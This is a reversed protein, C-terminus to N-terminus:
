IKLFTVSLSPREKALKNGRNREHSAVPFVLVVASYCRRFEDRHGDKEPWRDIRALLVFSSPELRLRSHLYSFVAIVIFGNTEQTMPFSRSLELQKGPTVLRKKRRHIFCSSSSFGSDRSSAERISFFSSASVRLLSSVWTSSARRPSSSFKELCRSVSRAGRAENRRGYFWCSKIREKKKRKKKYGNWLDFRAFSRTKLPLTSGRRDCVVSLKM